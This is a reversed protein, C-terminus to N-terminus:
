VARVETLCLKAPIPDMQNLGLYLMRRLGQREKGTHPEM